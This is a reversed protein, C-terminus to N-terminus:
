KKAVVIQIECLRGIISTLKDFITRLPSPIFGTFYRFKLSGTFWPTNLFCHCKIKYGTEKLVKLLEDRTFLFQHKNFCAINSHSKFRSFTPYKFTIFQANPTSIFLYGNNKLVRKSELLIKQAPINHELLEGLIISNFVCDKFPLWLADACCWNIRGKEYKLRSYNLFNQCRDIAVTNYGDEALLLSINAQACGNDLIRSGKSVYMKVKKLIFYLRSTYSLYSPASKQPNHLELLDHKYLFNKDDSDIQEIRPLKM